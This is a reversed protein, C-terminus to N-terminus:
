ILRASRLASLSSPQISLCAKLKHPYLWIHSTSLCNYMRRTQVMGIDRISDLATFALPPQFSTILSGRSTAILAIHIIYDYLNGSVDNKHHLSGRRGEVNRAYQLHDFVPCQPLCPHPVLCNFLCRLLLCHTIRLTWVATPTKLLAYSHAVLAFLTYSRLFWFLTSNGVLVLFLLMCQAPQAHLININSLTCV